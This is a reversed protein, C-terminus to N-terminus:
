RSASGAPGTRLAAGGDIRVTRADPDLTFGPGELVYGEGRLIVHDDGRVLRDNGDFRARETDVRDSGQVARVGGELQFRRATANGTGRLADLHSAERGASPPFDVHIREARIEGSDRRMRAAAARGSADLVAGRFVEFRVNDFRVEPVVDDVESGKRPACGAAGAVLSSVAICTWVRRFM